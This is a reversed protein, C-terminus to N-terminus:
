EVEIAGWNMFNQQYSPMDKTVGIYTFNEENALHGERAFKSLDCSPDAVNKKNQVKQPWFPALVPRFPGFNFVKASGDHSWNFNARSPCKALSSFKVEM